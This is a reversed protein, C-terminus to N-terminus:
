GAPVDVVAEWRVDSLRPHARLWTGVATLDDLTLTEDAGYLVSGTGNPDAEVEDPPFPVGAILEFLLRHMLDPGLPTDHRFYFRVFGSRYSM